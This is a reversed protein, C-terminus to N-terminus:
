RSYFDKVRQTIPPYEILKAPYRSPRVTCPPSDYYNSPGCHQGSGDFGINEVHSYTPYVCYARRLYHALLWGPSWADLHGAVFKQIMGPVDTGGQTLDVNERLARRYATSVDREYHCWARRWTAWGWTEARTNFYADYPYGVNTGSLPVTYGAVSLVWEDEAYRDLCESVFELFYPGPVCDDELVIVTDYISLVRDVADLLSGRLGLNRSGLSLIPRTWTIGGILERVAGIAAEDNRDKPGDSFVFLPKPQLRELQELVRATHVPRNYTILAVPHEV